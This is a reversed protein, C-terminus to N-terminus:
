AALGKVQLLLDYLVSDAEQASGFRDAPDKALLRDLLPQLLRLSEPLRPVPANRHKHLIAMPNPDTFPREGTLMEHLIVGLSYLDSRADVPGGHGQEPSMYHPTGFIIGPDTMALDAEEHKALGFDGLAIRDPARMLVNGPKLDRHLVGARHLAHLGRAVQIALALAQEVSFGAQMRRRLDGERFYEMVLYAHDDAVGLEHSLVIHPHRLARGIEYEQLFREFARDTGEADHLSPTVKVAVLSGLKESEAIYLQSATGGPIRRVCRYGPIRIAGFSRSAEGAHSVRWDALARQRTRSAERLADIFREGGIDERAIVAFAGFVRALAAVEGDIRDVIFLLPAFGPRAALDKLWSLGDGGPWSEALLVADFGQALFEPPLPGAADPPHGTLLADPWVACVHRRLQARLRADHEVLLLRM